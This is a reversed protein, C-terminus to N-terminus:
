ALSGVDINISRVIRRRIARRDSVVDMNLIEGCGMEPSKLMEAGSRCSYGQVETGATAMRHTLDNSNGFRNAAPTHRAAISRPPGAIRRNQDGIGTERAIEEAPARLHRIEFRDDSGSKGPM